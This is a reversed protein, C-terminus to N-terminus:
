KSIKSVINSVFVKIYNELTQIFRLINDGGLSDAFYKENALENVLSPSLYITFGDLNTLKIIDFNFGKDNFVSSSDRTKRSNGHSSDVYSKKLLEIINFYFM